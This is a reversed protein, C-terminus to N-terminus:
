DEIEAAKEEKAAKKAGKYAERKATAIETAKHVPIMLAPAYFLGIIASVIIAVGAGVCFWAINGGGLAGLLIMAVAMVGYVLGQEKVAISEVVLEEAPMGNVNEDKANARLKGLNLAVAFATLLAAIAIVMAVAPTVLIRTAMIIAATVAMGLLVCVGALIGNRWKYRIAVYAGALIAIVAGAICGRLVYYEAVYSTMEVEGTMVLIEFGEYKGGEGTNSNMAEKVGAVAATLDEEANFVFVFQQEGGDHEGKEVYLVNNKNTKFIDECEAQIDDGYIEYAYSEVTVTVMKSDKISDAPNFVGFGMVGGLIGVGAAIVLIAAFVISIVPIILKNKAMSFINKLKNM